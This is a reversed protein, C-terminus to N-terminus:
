YTEEKLAKRIAQIAKKGDFMGPYEQRMVYYISRLDTYGEVAIYCDALDQLELILEQRQAVTRELEVHGEVVVTQTLGRGRVIDGVPTLFDLVQGDDEVIQCSPALFMM